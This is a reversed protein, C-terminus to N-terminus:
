SVSGLERHWTVVSHGSDTLNQALDRVVLVSRHQGGTCGVAIVVYPKGLKVHEEYTREALQLWLDLFFPYKDDARVYAAVGDDLGTLTRLEEVYYPNRFVRADFVMDANTPLGRQYSFSILYFEPGRDKGVFNEVHYVLEKDKMNTTDLVFDSIDRLESMLEKESEIAEILALRSGTAHVLPHLHRTLNFRSLLTDTSAELFVVSLPLKSKLFQLDSVFNSVDAQGRLSRSDVVVAVRQEQNKAEYLQLLSNLLEVPVNDVVVYGLDELAKSVTSKGAGSLGTVVIVKQM